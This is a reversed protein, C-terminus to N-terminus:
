NAAYSSSGPLPLVPEATALDRPWIVRTEDGVYQMVVPLVRRNQGAMSHGPPYFEVGYGQITGGQPIRTEVAAKRLSEADFGGHKRIARPLVDTLLTWTQNFGISVYSPVTDAKKEAKYRRVM